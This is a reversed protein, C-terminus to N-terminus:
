DGAPAPWHKMENAVQARMDEPLLDDSRDSIEAFRRALEEASGEDLLRGQTFSVYAREFAGGGGMLIVRNPAQESALFVIGPAVKDAALVAKEHATLISQNMRSVGAPAFCNVHVNKPAGEIGLTNMMGVLAMKATAYATQGFAGALGSSSGILVIRGYQQDRMTAWVAKACHFAGTVHVDMVASFDEHTLKGFSSDRVFGANNVLIDIRGWREKARAAMEECWHPDTVSGILALAEGGGRRIEEAVGDEAGDGATGTGNVVVRAGRAALALAYERGLGRGSGTVIAVRGDFRM